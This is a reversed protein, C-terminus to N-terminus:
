TGLSPVKTKTETDIDANILPLLEQRLDLWGQLYEPNSPVGRQLLAVGDELAIIGYSQETLKRDFTAVTGQLEGREKKFAGQYRRLRWTDSFLYDVPKTEGTDGTIETWPLRVIARRS